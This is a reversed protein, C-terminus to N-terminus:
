LKLSGHILNMYLIIIGGKKMKKKKLNMSLEAFNPINCFSCKLIDQADEIFSDKKEHNINRKEM